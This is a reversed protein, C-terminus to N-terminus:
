VHDVVECRLMEGVGHVSFWLEIRDGEVTIDPSTTYEALLPALLERIEAGSLESVPRPLHTLNDRGYRMADIWGSPRSEGTNNPGVFYISCCFCYHGVDRRCTWHNFEGSLASLALQAAAETASIESTTMM